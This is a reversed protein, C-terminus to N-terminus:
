VTKSPTPNAELAGTPQGPRSETIIVLAVSVIIM